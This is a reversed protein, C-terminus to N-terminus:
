HTALFYLELFPFFGRTQLCIFDELTEQDRTESNISNYADSVGLPLQMAKWVTTERCGEGM